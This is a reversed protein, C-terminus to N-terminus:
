EENVRKLAAELGTKRAEEEALRRRNEEIVAEPAKAIFGENSLKKSIKEIEGSTAKIEKELRAKEAEFDLIGALPLALDVQALSTRASQKPM